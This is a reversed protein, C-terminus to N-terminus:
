RAHDGAQPEQAAEALWKHLRLATIKSQETAAVRLETARDHLLRQNLLALMQEATKGTACVLFLFGFKAEYDANGQALGLLVAESAGHVGQQEQLSWTAQAAYKRRISDVDGIKPHCSFAQLWDTEELTAFIQEAQQLLSSVDAWPARAAMQDVWRAAGCCNTLRARLAASPWANIRALGRAWDTTDQGSM